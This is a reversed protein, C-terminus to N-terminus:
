RLEESLGPTLQIGLSLARRADERAAQKNGLLVYIVARDHYAGAHNPNFQICSTFDALAQYADPKLVATIRGGAFMGLFDGFGSAMKNGADIRTKARETASRGRSFSRAMFTQARGFYGEAYTPDRDLAETFEGIARDFDGVQYSQLGSRYWFESDKNSRTCSIIAYGQSHRQLEEYLRQMLPERHEPTLRVPFLPFLDLDLRWSNEANLSYFTWWLRASQAQAPRVVSGQVIRNEVDVVDVRGGVSRTAEQVVALIASYEGSVVIELIM